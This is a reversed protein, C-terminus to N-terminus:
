AILLTRAYGAPATAAPSAPVAKVREVAVSAALLLALVVSWAPVRRRKRAPLGGHAGPEIPQAPWSPCKTM